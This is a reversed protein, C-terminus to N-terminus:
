RNNDDNGKKRAVKANHAKALSQFMRKASDPDTIKGAREKEEAGEFILFDTIKPRRGKKPDRNIEALVTCIKAASYEVRQPLFPEKQYFVMWEALERETITEEM